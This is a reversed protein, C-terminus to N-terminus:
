TRWFLTDDPKKILGNLFDLIEDPEKNQGAMELITQIGEAAVVGIQEKDAKENDSKPIMAQSLPTCVLPTISFTPLLDRLEKVRRSFKLAEWKYRSGEKYM